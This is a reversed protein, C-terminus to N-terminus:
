NSVKERERMFYQAVVNIASIMREEKVLNLYGNVSILFFVM